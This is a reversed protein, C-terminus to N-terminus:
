LKGPEWIDDCRPCTRSDATRGHHFSRPESTRDPDRDLDSAHGCLDQMGRRPKDNCTFTPVKFRFAAGRLLDLIGQLFQSLSLAPFAKLDCAVFVTDGGGTISFALVHPQVVQPQDLPDDM